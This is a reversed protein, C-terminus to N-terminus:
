QVTVSGTMGPHVTCHYPYSGATNFVHAYTQGRSLLSSNLESGGTSTVTHGISDDNRWTVTDGVAVTLNSPSYALSVILVTNPDQNGPPPNNGYDSGYGDKGCGASLFLVAPLIAPIITSRLSLIRM